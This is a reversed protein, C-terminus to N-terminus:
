AQGKAGLYPITDDVPCFTAFSYEAPRHNRHSRVPLHPRNWDIVLAPSTTSFSLLETNWVGMEVYLRSINSERPERECNGCKTIPKDLGM